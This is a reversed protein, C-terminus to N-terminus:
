EDHAAHTPRYPIAYPAVSDKDRKKEASKYNPRVRQEVVEWCMCPVISMSLWRQSTHPPATSRNERRAAEREGFPPVGGALSYLFPDAKSTHTHARPHEVSSLPDRNLFLLPSPSPSFTFFGKRLSTM